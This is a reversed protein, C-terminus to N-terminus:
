RKERIDSAKKNLIVIGSVREGNSGSASRPSPLHPPEAPAQIYSQSTSIGLSSSSSQEVGHYVQLTQRLAM